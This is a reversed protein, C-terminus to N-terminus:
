FVFLFRIRALPPYAESEMRLITSQAVTHRVFFSTANKTRWRPARAVFISCIAILPRDFPANTFQDGKQRM